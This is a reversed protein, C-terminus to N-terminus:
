RCCLAISSGAREPFELGNLVRILCRRPVAHKVFTFAHAGKKFPTYGHLFVIVLPFLFHMYFIYTVIFAAAVPFITGVFQRDRGFGDHVFFIDGRKEAGM